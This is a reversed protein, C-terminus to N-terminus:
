HTLRTVGLILRRHQRSCARFHQQRERQARARGGVMHAPLVADIGVCGTLQLQLRAFAEVGIERALKAQAAAAETRTGLETGCEVVDGIGRDVILAPQRLGTAGETELHPQALPRENYQRTKVGSTCKGRTRERAHAVACLTLRLMKIRADALAWSLLTM